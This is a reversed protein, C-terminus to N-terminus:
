WVICSVISLTEARLRWTTPSTAVASTVTRQAAESRTPMIVAGAPGTAMMEGHGGGALLLRQEEQGEDGDEAGPGTEDRRILHGDRALGFEAGEVRLYADHVGHPSPPPRRAHSPSARRSCSRRPGRIRRLAGHRRGWGGGEPERGHIHVEGGVLLELGKGADARCEGAPDGRRTVGRSREPGHLLEL